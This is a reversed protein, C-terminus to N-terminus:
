GPESGLVARLTVAVWSFSQRARKEFKLGAELGVNKLMAAGPSLMYERRGKEKKGLLPQRKASPVEMAAGITAPAAANTYPLVGLRVLSWTTFLSILVPSVVLQPKAAGVRRRSTLFASRPVESVAMTPWSRSGSVPSAGPKPAGGAVALSKEPVVRIM